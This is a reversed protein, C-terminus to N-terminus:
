RKSAVRRGGDGKARGPEARERLIGLRTTLTKITGSTGLTEVAVPVKQAAEVAWTMNPLMARVQPAWRHDCWVVAHPWEYRTLKVATDPIEEHRARGKLANQFAKRSIPTAGQIRLAIYRPRPRGAQSM